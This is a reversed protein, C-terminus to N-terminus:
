ARKRSPRRLAKQDLLFAGLGLTTYVFGTLAGIVTILGLLYYVILGVLLAWNWGRKMGFRLLFWRGVVLSTFIKSFYVLFAFVPIVLLALPIGVITIALVVLAVSLLIFTLLAVGLSGWPRSSIIKAIGEARKPFLYIFILGLILSILFSFFNLYLKIKGLGFMVPQIQPAIKEWEVEKEEPPKRITEGVVLADEDIEAEEESQYELDGLIQAESTLVLDEIAGKLDGGVQNAFVARGAFVNAERGIPGRVDVM